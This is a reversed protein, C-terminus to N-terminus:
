RREEHDVGAEAAAIDLIRGVESAIARADDPSTTAAAHAELARLRAAREPHREIAVYVAWQGIFRRLPAASYTDRAQKLAAAREADFTTVADPAVTVL